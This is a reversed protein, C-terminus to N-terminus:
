VPSSNNILKRIYVNWVSFKYKCIGCDRLRSEKQNTIYNLRRYYASDANLTTVSDNHPLSFIEGFEVNKDNKHFTYTVVFHLLVFISSHTSKSNKYLLFCPWCRRYCRSTFLSAFSAFISFISFPVPTSKFSVTVRSARWTQSKWLLNRHHKM